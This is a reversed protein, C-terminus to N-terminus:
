KRILKFAQQWNHTAVLQKICLMGLAEILRAEKIGGMDIAASWGFASLIKDVAQKASKNDGCIFMDPLEGLLSPNTMLPAAIINFAKVVNAEPLWRQVQEGASDTFGLALNPGEPGFVIPNTTDIVVKGAFNKPEALRLANETGSWLTAVILTDGFAAAEAFKGQSAKAGTKAVWEQVKENNAERSGIKVEHGLGVLGTGLTQGVVGSGLIGFKM